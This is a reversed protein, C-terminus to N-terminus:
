LNLSSADVARGSAAQTVPTLSQDRLFKELREFQLTRSLGERASLPLSRVRGLEQKERLWVRLQGAIEEAENSCFGASRQRVITAPVGNELGLVLVPRLSAIYEFLKGPCSGQERPDNWQMLLLVDSQRQFLLSQRYPIPPRLEVLHPIGARHALPLVHAPNSGVFVIRIRDSDKGLLRVAQFLPSPDRKGPYIGGTYGILMPAAPDGHEIGDGLDFDAPDYGNYITAVPKGYKCEYFETWPESVTVLARATKLVRRELWQDERARWPPFDGYPDDAWRDRLEAIWPLAFRANIFWAVVQAAFPPGSAFLLDPQWERCARHCAAYAWPVWGVRNDPVNTVDVYFEAMRRVVSKGSPVTPEPSAASPESADAGKLAFLRKFCRQLLNPLANIDFSKAYAVHDLTAELPLTEPHGWYRGSVVRVQHGRDVLFRAFKGVRVAGITNVPPFYWSVILIKL